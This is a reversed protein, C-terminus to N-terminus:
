RPRFPRRTLAGIATIGMLAAAAPEPVSPVAGTPAFTTLTATYHDRVSTTGATFDTADTRIILLASTQGPHVGLADPFYFLVQSGDATRTAKTPTIQGAGTLEYSVDTAYGSFNSDTLRILIDGTPGNNTFQDSFTITGDKERYVAATLSGTYTPETFGQTSTTLLLGSETTTGPITTGAAPLLAASLKAASSGFVACIFGALCASRLM